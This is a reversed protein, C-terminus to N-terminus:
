LIDGGPGDNRSFGGHLSREPHGCFVLWLHWLANGGLIDRLAELSWGNFISVQRVRSLIVCDFFTTKEACATPHRIDITACVQVAVKGRLLRDFVTYVLALRIGTGCYLVRKSNDAGDM